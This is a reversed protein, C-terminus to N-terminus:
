KDKYSCYESCVRSLGQELAIKPTWGLELMKSIDLLKQPTGDPYRNDWLIKGKFGVITAITSALERISINKGTGVNLFLLPKDAVYRPAKDSSPDWKELAIICAEALDDVHMFERLPSGTGWCFIEKLGKAKALTIKQILGPIVHSNKPHYNDGPGYLNTPMLSIADFGFQEHLAQCLKIGTIKAIAYMENTNELSGTLLYEETIPQKSYRPYICSSGLFLLRRVGIEQSITIVNLQIQLNEILFDAPYSNNAYIGGVKAAALVVVDPRKIQFWAKTAAYDLLNLESRDAVLLNKYGKNRFCRLISSGVMGRHGAIFIQDGRNILKNTM